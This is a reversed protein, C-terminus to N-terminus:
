EEPNNRNEARQGCARGSKAHSNMADKQHVKSIKSIKMINFINMMM